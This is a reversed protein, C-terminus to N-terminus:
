NNEVFLKFKDLGQQANKRLRPVIVIGGILKIWLSKHDIYIEHRLRTSGGVPDLIYNKYLTKLYPPDEIREGYNLHGQAPLIDVVEFNLRAQGIVCVHPSGLRTVEDPNYEFADVEEQWLQRYQYNSLYEYVEEVSKEILKEIILIPKQDLKVQYQHQHHSDPFLAPDMKVYRYSHTLGDVKKEGLELNFEKKTLIDDLISSSAEETILLYNHYPVDNKLLRHVKIVEPGFPKRHGKVTIFDIDGYHVVIKLKLNPAVACANCPCIRQHNLLHLHKFFAEYLHHIQEFLKEPDPNDSIKYFFLADGEIEALELKCINGDILLELLESIVHRSHSIETSNVFETFGSIDPIFLLAKSMDRCIKAKILYEKIRVGYV